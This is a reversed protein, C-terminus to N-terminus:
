ELEGKAQPFIDVGQATQCGQVLRKAAYVTRSDADDRKPRFGWSHFIYNFDRICKLAEGKNKALVSVWSYIPQGERQLPLEVTAHFEVFHEEEERRDKYLAFKRYFYRYEKVVARQEEPTLEAFTADVATKLWGWNTRNAPWKRAWPCKKEIALGYMIQCFVQIRQDKTFESHM